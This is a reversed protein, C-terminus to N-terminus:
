ENTARLIVMAAEHAIGPSCNFMKVLEAQVDQLDRTYYARRIKHLMVERDQPLEIEVYTSVGEGALARHDITQQDFSYGVAEDDKELVWLKITAASALPLKKM